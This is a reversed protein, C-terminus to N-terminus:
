HKCYLTSRSCKEACIKRRTCSRRNRCTNHTQGPYGTAIESSYKRVERSITSSDKGLRRSIEKFSLGEKLCSQLHLREEYIFFKSM